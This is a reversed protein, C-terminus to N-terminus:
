VIDERPFNGWMEERAKAIDGDTIPSPNMGAWLGELSKRPMKKKSPGGLSDVFDLVERQKEPPLTRVREIVADEITVTVELIRDFYSEM